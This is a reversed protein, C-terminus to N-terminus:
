GPKYFKLNIKQWLKKWLIKFEKKKILHYIRLFRVRLNRQGYLLLNNEFEKKKVLVSTRDYNIVHRISKVDLGILKGFDGAYTQDPQVFPNEIKKRFVYCIEEEMEYPIYSFRKKRVADRVIEILDSDYPIVNSMNLQPSTITWFLNLEYENAIAIHEFLLPQYNFFGHNLTGQFPVIGVMLGNVNCIDHMNKFVNGQNCIHETTGFNTILDFKENFGYDKILDKNLDFKLSKNHGNLDISTYKSIGIKRYMEEPLMDVVKIKEEESLIRIPKNVEHPFDLPFSGDHIGLDQAGIECVSRVQNLIGNVHLISLLSTAPGGIGM